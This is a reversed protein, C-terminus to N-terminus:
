LLSVKTYVIQIPKPEGKQSQKYKKSYEYLQEDSNRMTKQTEQTKKFVTDIM